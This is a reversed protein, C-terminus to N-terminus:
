QQMSHQATVVVDVAFRSKYLMLQLEQMTCVAPSSFMIAVDWLMYLQIWDLCRLEPQSEAVATDAVAQGV